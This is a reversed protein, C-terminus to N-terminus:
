KCVCLLFATKFNQEQIQNEIAALSSQLNKIGEVIEADATEPLIDLEMFALGGYYSILPKFVALAVTFVPNAAVPQAAWSSCLVATVAVLFINKTM